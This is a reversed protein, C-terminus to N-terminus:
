DYENEMRHEFELRQENPRDKGTPSENCPGYFDVVDGSTASKRAPKNDDLGESKIAPFKEHYYSDPTLSDKSIVGDGTAVATGIGTVGVLILPAVFTQGNKM